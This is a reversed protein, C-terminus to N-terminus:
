THLPVDQRYQRTCSDKSSWGQQYFKTKGTGKKYTVLNGLKDIKVEDVYPKILNLVTERLIEERGSPAPTSTLKSLLNFDM